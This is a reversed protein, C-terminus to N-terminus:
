LCVHVLMFVVEKSRTTRQTEGSASMNSGSTGDREGRSPTSLPTQLLRAGPQGEGLFVSRGGSQRQVPVHTKGTMLSVSFGQSDRPRSGTPRQVPVVRQVGGPGWGTQEGQPGQSKAAELIGDALAHVLDRQVSLAEPVSVLVFLCTRNGWVIGALM